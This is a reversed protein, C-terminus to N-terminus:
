QFVIEMFQMVLLWCVEKVVSASCHLAYSVVQLYTYMVDQKFLM